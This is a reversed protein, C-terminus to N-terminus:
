TSDPQKGHQKQHERQRAYRTGTANGHGHWRALVVDCDNSTLVLICCGDVYTSLINKDILVAIGNQDICINTNLIPLVYSNNALNVCLRNLLDLLNLHEPWNTRKKRNAILVNGIAHVCSVPVM